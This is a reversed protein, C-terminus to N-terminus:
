SVHLDLTEAKLSEALDALGSEFGERFDCWHTSRVFLPLDSSDIRLPILIQRDEEAERKHTAARERRIWPRGVSRATAVLAVYRTAELIQEIVLPFSDGGTLGTQDYWVEFGREALASALRTVFDSDEHYYSIFVDPAEETDEIPEPEDPSAPVVKVIRVRVTPM